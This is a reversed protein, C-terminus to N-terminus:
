DGGKTYETGETELEESREQGVVGLRCLHRYGGEIHMLFHHDRSDRAPHFVM